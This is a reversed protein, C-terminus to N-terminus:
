FTTSPRLFKRNLNNESSPAFCSMILNVGVVSLWDIAELMEEVSTRSRGGDETFVRWSRLFFMTLDLTAIIAMLVVVALTGKLSTIEPLKRWRPKGTDTDLQWLLAKLTFSLTVIYVGYFLPQFLTMLLQAEIQSIAM